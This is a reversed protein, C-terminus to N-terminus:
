DFSSSAIGHATWVDGHRGHSFDQGLVDTRAQVFELPAFTLKRSSRTDALLLDVVDDPLTEAATDLCQVLETDREAHLM